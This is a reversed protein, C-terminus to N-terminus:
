GHVSQLSQTTFFWIPAMAGLFLLRAAYAGSRERSAFLRLPMVPQQARRENMVFATLLLVGAALAVFTGPDGWGADASHVVGFVLATMGLTSAPAGAADADGRRPETEHLYRPAALIMAAGIPLNIFFGVRWSLWAAFIGGVVLGVTSAV